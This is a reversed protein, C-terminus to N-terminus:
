TASLRPVGAMFLPQFARLGEVLLSQNVLCRQPTLADTAMLQRM